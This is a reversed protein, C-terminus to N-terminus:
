CQRMRYEANWKINTYAFVYLLYLIIGFPQKKMSKMIIDLHL